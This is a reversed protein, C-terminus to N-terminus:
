QPSLCVTLTPANIGPRRLKLQHALYFAAYMITSGVSYVNDKAMRDSYAREMNQRLATVLSTQRKVERQANELDDARKQLGTHMPEAEAM